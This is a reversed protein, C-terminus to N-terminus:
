ARAFGCLASRAVAFHAVSDPSFRLPKFSKVLEPTNKRTNSYKKKHKNIPVSYQYNKQPFKQSVNLKISTVFKVMVTIFIKKVIRRSFTVANRIEM